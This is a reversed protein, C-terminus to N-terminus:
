GGPLDDLSILGYRVALLAAQTRDSVHLKGLITSVYGKVTAETLFLEAGIAKNSMGQGLLRLVEQERGTLDDLPTHPTPMQQMLRRAIAPHLQPRGQAAGRIAEVLDDGSTDKLLYGNAGAQLAAYLHADNGFSTLILIFVAPFRRHIAATAEIGNMEPMQIDMLVVDPRTRAVLDVAERGNKAEGLLRMDEEGAITLRLGRRVIEHDDAIVIGIM